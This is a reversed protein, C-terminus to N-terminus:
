KKIKLWQLFRTLFSKPKKKQEAEKKFLELESPTPIKFLDPPLPYSTYETQCVLQNITEDYDSKVKEEWVYEALCILSAAFHNVYKQPSKLNSFYQKWARIQKRIVEDLAEKDYAVIADMANCIARFMADGKLRKLSLCKKASDIDGVLLMSLPQSIYYAGKTTHYKPDVDFATQAFLTGVSKILEKDKTILMLLIKEWCGAGVTNPYIKTGQCYTELLWKMILSSAYICGLSECYRNDMAYYCSLIEFDSIVDLQGSCFFYKNDLYVGSSRILRLDKRLCREMTDLRGELNFDIMQFM